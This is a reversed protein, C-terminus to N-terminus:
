VQLYRVFDELESDDLAQRSGKGYRNKLITRAQETSLQLQGILEDTQAIMEQRDVTPAPEEGTNLWKLLAEALPQGPLEHMTGNLDSCRTKTIYGTNDLNMELMFDFEYEINKAQEPATGVRRPITVKKGHKNEGEELVWETKSRMTAIVHGPYTLIAELLLRSQPKLKGWATFSNGDRSNAATDCQWNWAHTLSDIILVEYGAQRAEAIAEIYHAPSFQALENVDYAMSFRDAYKCASGHETDIVAVTQGLYQALKLATFTKGSGSPGPIALRLKLKEKVATKFAM